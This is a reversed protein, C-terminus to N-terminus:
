RSLKGAPVVVGDAHDDVVQDVVDGLPEEVEDVCQGILDLLELFPDVLPVGVPDASADRVQTVVHQVDPPRERRKAVRDPLDDVIADIEFALLHEGTLDLQVESGHPGTTRSRRDSSNM